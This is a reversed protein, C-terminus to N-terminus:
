TTQSYVSIFVRFVQLMSDADIRGKIKIPASFTTTVKMVKKPEASLFIIHQMHSFLMLKNTRDRTQRSTQRVGKKDRSIHSNNQLTWSATRHHAEALKLEDPIDLM